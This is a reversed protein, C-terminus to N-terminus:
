KSTQRFRMLLPALLWEIILICIFVAIWFAIRLILNFPLRVGISWIVCGWVFSSNWMPYFVNKAGSELMVPDESSIADVRLELKETTEGIIPFQIKETGFASITTSYRALIEEESTYPNQILSIEYRLSYDRPNKISVRINAQENKGLFIPCNLDKLGGPMPEHSILYMTPIYISNLCGFVVVGLIGVSLFTIGKRRKRANDISTMM